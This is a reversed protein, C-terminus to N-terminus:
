ARRNALLKALKDMDVTRANINVTSNDTHNITGFNAGVLRNGVGINLGDPIIGKAMNGIRFDKIADTLGRLSIILENVMANPNMAVKPAGAVAAGREVIGALLAFEDLARQKALMAREGKEGDLGIMKDIRALKERAKALKGIDELARRDKRRQLAEIFKMLAAMQQLTTVQKGLTSLLDTELDLRKDVVKNMDKDKDKDKDKTEEEVIKDAEAAGSLRSIDEMEQKLRDLDAKDEATDLKEELAKIDSALQEKRKKAALAQRLEIRKQVDEENELRMEMIKTEADERAKAVEENRKENEKNGENLANFFSSLSSGRVAKLGAQAQELQNELSAIKEAAGEATPTARAINLDGQITAIEAERAKILQKFIDQRKKFEEQLDDMRREHATMQSRSLEREFDLRSQELDALEKLKEQRETLQAFSEAFRKRDVENNLDLGELNPLIRLLDQYVKLQSQGAKEAEALGGRLQAMLSQIPNEADLKLDKLNLLNKVREVVADLEPNGLKFVEKANSRKGLELITDKIETIQKLRDTEASIGGSLSQLIQESSKGSIISNIADFQKGVSEIVVKSKTLQSIQADIEFTTAKGTALFAERFENLKALEREIDILQAKRSGSDLNSKLLRDLEIPKAAALDALVTSVKGLETSFEGTTVVVKALAPRYAGYKDVLKQLDDALKEADDPSKDAKAHGTIPNFLGEEGFAEAYFKRYADIFAPPYAAYYAMKALIETLWILKTGIKVVASDKEFAAILAQFSIAISQLAPTMKEVIVAAFDLIGATIFALTEGFEFWRDTSLVKINFVNSIKSLLNETAKVIVQTQALFGNYIPVLVNQFVWRVKNAMEEFFKGWTTPAVAVSITLATFLAILSSFFGFVVVTATAVLAFVKAFAAVFTGGFIGVVFTTTAALANFAALVAGIAILPASLFAAASGVTFLATGISGLVGLFAIFGRVVVAVEDKNLEIIEKLNVVIDRFFNAITNIEKSVLQGVTVRFSTLADSLLQLSTGLTNLRAASIGEAVKNARELQDAFSGLRASGQALLANLSRFARQEFIQLLSATSLNLRDFEAVIDSFDRKEPDIADFSSGLSRFLVDLKGSKETLQTLVRTLGTGAISNGCVVARGKGRRVILTNNPVEVCYVLGSFKVTKLSVPYEVIGKQLQKRAVRDIESRSVNVSKKNSKIQVEYQTNDSFVRRGEIFSERPERSVVRTSYGALIALRDLDQSMRSSSTYIRFVADGDGLRYSELFLQIQRKSAEFVYDPVHKDLAKGFQKVYEFLQKSHTRFIGNIYNFKFPLRDCLEKIKQYGKSKQQQAICVAYNGGESYTYSGESLYFGLFEVWDDFPINVDAVNDTYFGKNRDSEGRLTFIDQDSALNDVATLISFNGKLLRDARILEYTEKGQKKIYMNHNPTVFLDVQKNLFRIMDGEHHYKIYERAEHFEVAHNDQNVTAYIMDPTTDEWRVWGDKTLVETEGDYCGKLGSNALTGLAAAVQEISQGSAAAVPAVIKFAEGLQSLNTNARTVTAAFVDAVRTTHEAELGFTAMSSIMINAAVSLESGTAAALQIVSELSNSIQDISFGALALQKATEAIQDASFSFRGALTLITQGLKTGVVDTKTLGNSLDGTIALVDTVSQEFKIFDDIVPKVFGFGRRAMMMMQRGVDRLIFSVRRLQEGFQNVGSTVTHIGKRINALNTQDIRKIQLAVRAAVKDIKQLDEKTLRFQQRVAALQNQLKGLVAKDATPIRDSINRLQDGLRISAAQGKAQKRSQRAQDLLSDRVLGANTTKIIEARLDQYTRNLENLIAKEDKLKANKKVSGSLLKDYLTRNAELTSNFADLSRDSSEYTKWLQKQKAILAIIGGAQKALNDKNKQAAQSALDSATKEAQGLRTTMAAALQTNKISSQIAAALKAKEQALLATLQQSTMTEKNAKVIATLYKTFKEGAADAATSFSKIGGDSKIFSRELEALAGAVKRIATAQKELKANNREVESARRKGVDEIRFNPDRASRAQAVRISEQINRAQAEFEALQAQKSPSLIKGSAAAKKEREILKAIKKFVAKLDRELNSIEDSFASKAGSALNQMSNNAQQQNGKVGNIFGQVVDIGVQHFVKSPSQIGFFNKVTTLIGKSVKTMAKDAEPQKEKIGSVLGAVIAKGLQQAVEVTKSTKKANKLATAASKEFVKELNELTTALKTKIDTQNLKQFLIKINLVATGLDRQAM